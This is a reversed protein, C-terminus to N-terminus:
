EQKDKKHCPTDVWEETEVYGENDSAKPPFVPEMRELDKDLKRRMVQRIRTAMAADYVRRGEESEGWWGRTIGYKWLWTGNIKYAGDSWERTAELKESRIWRRVTAPTVGTIEAVESTSFVHGAHM